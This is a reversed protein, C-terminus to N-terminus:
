PYLKRQKFLEKILCYLFFFFYGNDDLFVSSLLM